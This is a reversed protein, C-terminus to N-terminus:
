IKQPPCPVLGKVKIIISYILYIAAVWMVIAFIKNISKLLKGSKDRLDILFRIVIHNM